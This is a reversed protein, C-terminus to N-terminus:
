PPEQGEFHGAFWGVRVADMLLETIASRDAAPVPLPKYAGFLYSADARLMSVLASLVGGVGDLLSRVDYSPNRQIIRELGTTVILVLQGYLLDLQRKLATAPEGVSSVAVFYLPGHLMFVILTSGSRIHQVTDGQNQVVSILASILATLSALSKEDNHYSYIPKGASSLIFFHKPYTHWAAGEEDSGSTSAETDDSPTEPQRQLAEAPIDACTHGSAVNHLQKIALSAVAAEIAEVSEGNEHLDGLRSPAPPEAAATLGVETLVDSSVEAPEDEEPLAQVARAAGDDDDDDDDDDVDASRAEDEVRVNGGNVSAPISPITFDNSALSLVPEDPDM